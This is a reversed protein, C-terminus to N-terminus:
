LTATTDVDVMVGAHDSPYIGSASPKNLIVRAKRCRPARTNNQVLMVIHDIRVGARRDADVPFTTVPLVGGGAAYADAVMWGPLAMLWRMAPSSLTANFDGCLWTVSVPCFRNIHAIIASLQQQRVADATAIHTLHTNVVRWLRHGVMIDIWQAIREHDEAPAPLRIQHHRIVPLQALIAL